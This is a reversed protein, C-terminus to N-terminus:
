NGPAAEAVTPRAAWGGSSLVNLTAVILGVAAITATLRVLCRAGEDPDAGFAAAKRQADTLNTVAAAELIHM